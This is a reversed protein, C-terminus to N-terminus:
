KCAIARYPDDKTPKLIDADPVIVPYRVNVGSM